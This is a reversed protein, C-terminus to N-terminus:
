KRQSYKTTAKNESFIVKFLFYISSILGLLGIVAIMLGLFTKDSIHNGALWAIDAVSFSIACSVVYKKSEEVKVHQRWNISYLIMMFILIISFIENNM